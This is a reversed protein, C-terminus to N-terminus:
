PQETWRILRVLRPQYDILLFVSNEPTMLEDEIPDRRIESTM